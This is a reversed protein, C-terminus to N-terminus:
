PAGRACRFGVHDDAQFTPQFGGDRHSVAVSENAWSGGRIVRRAGSRPGQPNRNVGRAYYTPDYWDATWEWVNGTMDHAGYPSVGGPYSGVAVTKVLNTGVSNSKGPDWQNGWPYTRGDTGRAAKEWEAETPLRKGAWKCYADADHWTVGVVPQAPGNWRAHSWFRPASRGTADMFRRYLANTVEFKDIYYADLWVRRQPKEDDHADSGMTFEGAPVLVMEAGDDGKTVKPAEPRLSEIDIVVEARQNAAVQVERTWEPLGAKRATVRHTGAPVNRLVYAAGTKTTWVKQDGLWVDLGPLRASIALTGFEQRVEEEGEIRPAPRPPATPRATATVVKADPRLFVFQGEGSLNGYQPVQKRGSEAYVRQKVWLGLEELALWGKGSFADGQLGRLLVSTFVGHGGREQAEDGQRGATLIQIAPKKVMEELLDESISRNYVAYGSYCADVVYLIHKAPLRDSIRRLSEMSIATSFLQGPDGDAPLLYGEQEGSRLRDTKGHGAFFVFLRDEAGMQTRLQDGLVREIATKTAQREMLTIIRDRRFGQALLAREVSRADNVAYRLKPIRPHQYDNIGVVVAWSDGYFGAAAPAGPKAEPVLARSQALVSGSQVALSLGLLAALTLRSM